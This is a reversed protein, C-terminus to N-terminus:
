RDGGIRRYLIVGAGNAKKGVSPIRKPYEAGRYTFTMVELLGETCARHWLGARGNQPFGEGDLEDRVDNSSIEDGVRVRLILSRFFVWAQEKLSAMAAAQGAAKAARAQELTVNSSAREEDDRIMDLLDPGAGMMTDTM